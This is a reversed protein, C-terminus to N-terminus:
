IQKKWGLIFGDISAAHTTFIILSLRTVLDLVDTRKWDSRRLSKFGLRCSFPRVSKFRRKVNDSAQITESKDEILEKEDWELSFLLIIM